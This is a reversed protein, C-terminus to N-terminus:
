AARSYVHHLGGLVPQGHVAGDARSWRRRPAPANGDLSQHCRGANYYDVFERLVRVLHQENLPIVHDTCERRLTGNVREVFGNCWPSAKPTVIDTLGLAKVKRKFVDGFISDRDRLLHTVEPADEGGLAEVLQLASWEATPHETVNVHLIKRSGHHLVVFVFLNRFTITPVTFFDCAITTDMHNALFTSWSQGRKPSPHRVRYKDVTTESVSHGLLALEEAIRPAGWLPNERSLRKILHVLKWGITPRGIRKPKSKRRWYYRWGRRHWRVVTDPQVIHLAERWTDLLRLMTIWFIRDQDDLRPRKVGRRLVAVQQRLAINELLLQQRSRLLARTMSLLTSFADM